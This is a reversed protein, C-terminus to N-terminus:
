GSENGLILIEPLIGEQNLHSSKHHTSLENNKKNKKKNYVLRGEILNARACERLSGQEKMQFRTQKEFEDENVLCVPGM